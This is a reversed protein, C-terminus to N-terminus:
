MRRGCWVVRGIVRLQNIGSETLVEPDYVSNDSKIVVSGDFKKQIRKVLLSGNLQLVYIANDDVGHIGLDILILDGNSLTPEMSDGKVNILALNKIPVGLANHVWDAKFSLHDVIQESHIMAGGGASAAVEYRPVYVYGEAPTATTDASKYEEAGTERQSSGGNFMDHIATIRDVAAVLRDVEPGFGERWMSGEGTMLWNLDIGLSAFNGLVKGGPINDGDEYGQWSRYAINLQQAMEKQNLGLSERAIKIREHLGM